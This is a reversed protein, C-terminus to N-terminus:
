IAAVQQRTKQLRLNMKNMLSDFSETKIIKGFQQRYSTLLSVEDIVMDYVVWGREKTSTMQFEVKVPQGDHKATVASALTAQKGNVVENVVEASFSDVPKVKALVSHEILEKLVATFDARQRANLTEWHGGLSRKALEQYDFSERMQGVLKERRVKEDLKRDQLITSIIREREKFVVSPNEVAIASGAQLVFGACLIALLNIKVTKGVVM